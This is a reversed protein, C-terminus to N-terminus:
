RADDQTFYRVVRGRRASRSVNLSFQCTGLLQKWEGGTWEFLGAGAGNTAYELTMAGEELDRSGTVTWRYRGQDDTTIPSIRTQKKTM